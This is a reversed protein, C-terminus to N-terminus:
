SGNKRMSYTRTDDSVCKGDAINEEEYVEGKLKAGHKKMPKM